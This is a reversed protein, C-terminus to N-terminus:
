PKRQSKLKWVWLLNIASTISVWESNRPSYSEMQLSTSVQCKLRNLVRLNWTVVKDTDQRCPSEVVPVSYTTLTSRKPTLDTPCSHFQYPGPGVGEQTLSDVLTVGGDTRPTVVSMLIIFVLSYLDTVSVFSWTVGKNTGKEQRERPLTTDTPLGLCM